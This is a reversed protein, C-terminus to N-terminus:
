AGPGPATGADSWVLFEHFGHQIFGYHSRVLETGGAANSLSAVPILGDATPRVVQLVDFKQPSNHLWGIVLLGSASDFSVSPDGFVSIKGIVTQSAIDIADVESERTFFLYKGNPDAELRGPTTINGKVPWAAVTHTAADITYIGEKDKLLMFVKGPVAVLQFASWGPLKVRTELRGTRANFIAIEPLLEFSAYLEHATPEYALSGAYHSELTVGKGGQEDVYGIETPGSYFVRGLDPAVEVCGVYARTLPGIMKPKAVSLDASYLGVANGAFLRHSQWDYRLSSLAQGDIVDPLHAVIRYDGPVNAPAFAVTAVLLVPLAPWRGLHSSM